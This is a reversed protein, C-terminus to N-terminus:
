EIIKYINKGYMQPVLGFIRELIHAITNDSEYGDPFKDYTLDFVNNEVFWNKFLNFNGMFMTGGIFRYETPVEEKFYDQELGFQNQNIVWYAHQAIGYESENNCSIFATEFKQKSGFLSSVLVRRWDNGFNGSVDHAISKKSHVKAFCEYNVGNEIISNFIYIFPAIDMGRNDFFYIKADPYKAKIEQKVDNRCDGKVLSVYLDFDVTINDFYSRFESWLDEYYLHLIVALPKM